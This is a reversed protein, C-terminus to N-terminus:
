IITVVEDVRGLQPKNILSPRDGRGRIVFTKTFECLFPNPIVIQPRIKGGLFCIGFEELCEDGQTLSTRLIIGKGSDGNSNCPDITECVEIKGRKAM